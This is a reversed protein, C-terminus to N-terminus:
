KLRFFRVKRIVGNMEIAFMQTDAKMKSMKYRVGTTSINLEESLQIISIWGDKNLSELDSVNQQEFFNSWAKSIDALAVSQKTKKRM